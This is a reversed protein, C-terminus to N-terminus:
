RQDNLMIDISKVKSIYASRRAHILNLKMIPLFVASVRSDILNVKSSKKSPRQTVKSQDMRKLSPRIDMLSLWQDLADTLILLLHYYRM